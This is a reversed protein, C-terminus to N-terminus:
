GRAASPQSAREWVPWSGQRIVLRSAAATEDLRRMPKTYPGGHAITPDLEAEHLIAAVAAAHQRPKALPYSANL